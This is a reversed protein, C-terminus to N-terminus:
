LHVRFRRDTGFEPSATIMRAKNMIEVDRRGIASAVKFESMDNELALQRLLQQENINFENPKTIFSKIAPFMASAFKEILVAKFGDKVKTFDEKSMKKEADDLITKIMPQASINVKQQTSIQELMDTFEPSNVIDDFKKKTANNLNIYEPSNRVVNLYFQPTPFEISNGFGAFSMDIRRDITMPSRQIQNLVSDLHTLEIQSFQQVASQNFSERFADHVTKATNMLLKSVVDEQEKTVESKLTRYNAVKRLTDAFVGNGSEQLIEDFYPLTDNLLKELSSYNAKDYNSTAKRTFAQILQQVAEQDYEGTDKNKFAQKFDAISKVPNPVNFFGDFLKSPNVSQGELGSNFNFKNLPSGTDNFRGLIDRYFKRANEYELKFQNGLKTTTLVDDLSDIREKLDYFDKYAGQKWANSSKRSLDSRLELFSSVNIKAPIPIEDRLVAFVASLKDNPTTFRDVSESVRQLIETKQEVTGKFLERNELINDSVINLLKNADLDGTVKDFVAPGINERFFNNSIDDVLKEAVKPPIGAFRKLFNRIPEDIEEARETVKLSDTIDITLDKYTEKLSDFRKTVQTTANDITKEFLRQQTEGSQVVAQPDNLVKVGGMIQLKKQLEFIEQKEQSAKSSAHIKLARLRDDAKMFEPDVLKEKLTEIINRIIEHDDDTTGNMALVASRLSGINKQIQQTYKDLDSILDGSVFGGKKSTFEAQAFLSQRLASLPGLNSAEALLVSYPGMAELNRVAARDHIVFLDTLSAEVTQKFEREAETNEPLNKINQLFSSSFDMTRKDFPTDGVILGIAYYQNPKGDKTLLGDSIAKNILNEREEKPRTRILALQSNAKEISQRKLIKLDKLSYGMALLTTTRFKQGEKSTPVEKMYTIIKDKVTSNAAALGGIISAIAGVGGKKVANVGTNALLAGMLSYGIKQMDSGGSVEALSYASAAGLASYTDRQIASSRERAKQSPLGLGQYQKEKLLKFSKTGEIFKHLENPMTQKALNLSRLEKSTIIGIGKKFVGGKTAYSAILARKFNETALNTAAVGGRLFGFPAFAGAVGLASLMTNRDEYPVGLYNIVDNWYKKARKSAPRGVNLNKEIDKGIDKYLANMNQRTDEVANWTDFAFNNANRDIFLPEIVGTYIDSFIGRTQPTMLMSPGLERGTLLDGIQTSAVARELVFEIAPALYSAGQGIMELTAIAGLDETFSSYKEAEEKTMTAKEQATPPSDGFLLGRIPLLVDSIEFGIEPNTANQIRKARQEQLAEPSLNLKITASPVRDSGDDKKREKLVSVGEVGATKIDSIVTPGYKGAIDTRINEAEVSRPETIAKIAREPFSEIDSSIKEPAEDIIYPILGKKETFDLETTPRGRRPTPDSVFGEATSGEAETPLNIRIESM